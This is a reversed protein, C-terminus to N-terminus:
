GKFQRYYRYFNLSFLWWAFLCVYAIDPTILFISFLGIVAIFVFIFFRLQPNLLFTTLNTIAYKHKKKFQLYSLVFTYQIWFLLAIVAFYVSFILSGMIGAFVIASILLFARKPTRSPTYIM